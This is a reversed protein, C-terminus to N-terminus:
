RSTTLWARLRGRGATLVLRFLWRRLYHSSLLGLASLSYGGQWILSTWDSAGISQLGHLVMPLVQCGLAGYLLLRPYRQLMVLFQRFEHLIQTVADFHAAVLTADAAAETTVATVVDGDLQILTRAYMTEGSLHEAPSCVVIGGHRCLHWLTRWGNVFAVPYHWVQM